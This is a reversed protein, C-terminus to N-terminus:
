ILPRPEAQTTEVLGIEALKDQDFVQLVGKSWNALHKDSLKRLTKNTHVLSLGLADALDQQRFPLPCRDNKVLGLARSRIFFRHLSWAIKEIAGRQGVTTLADGLFHEEVAALFTLSFARDPQSQYLEFLRTRNFVCLRMATTAEVSHRMAGMVGAQLGIFDGPFIFGVVQRRGNELTKYRIGMGSLATYLQAAKSGEIFLQTGPEALMEGTKFQQMFSLEDDGFQLFVEKKRLPCHKCDILNNQEPYTM